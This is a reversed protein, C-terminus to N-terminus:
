KQFDNLEYGRIKWEHNNSIDLPFSFILDDPVGYANGNSIIGMSASNGERTGHWWDHMHDVIANAASSSSSRGCQDIIFKGRNQVLSLFEGNYWDRHEQNLAKGAATAFHTDPYQTSSHNGWVFVDKVESNFCKEKKSVM